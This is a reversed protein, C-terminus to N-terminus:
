GQILTRTKAEVPKGEKLTARLDFVVKIRGRNMSWRLTKPDLQGFAKGKARMVIPGDTKQTEQQV